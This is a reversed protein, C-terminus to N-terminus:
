GFHVLVFTNTVDVYLMLQIRCINKRGELKTIYYQQTIQNVTDKKTTFCPDLTTKQALPPLM